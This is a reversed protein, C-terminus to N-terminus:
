RTSGGCFTTAWLDRPAIPNGDEDRPAPGNLAARRPKILSGVAANLGKRALRAAQGETPGFGARWLLRTAERESFAGDYVPVAMQRKEAWGCLDM